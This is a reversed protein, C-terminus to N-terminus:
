GKEPASGGAHAVLLKLFYVPAFWGLGPTPRWVATNLWAAACTLAVAVARRSPAPTSATAATAVLLFVYNGLAFSWDRDRYLAAVVFPHLHLASFALMERPGQGRGHYWRTAAPTANVWAGGFLDAGFLVAVGRQLPGWTRDPARSTLGVAAGLAATAATGADELAATGPGVFRDWAGILGPRPEQPPGDSM